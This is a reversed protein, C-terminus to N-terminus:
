ENYNGREIAKNYDYNMINQFGEEKRKLEDKLKLEEKTTSIPNLVPKDTIPKASKNGLKYGLFLCLFLVLMIAIGVLIGIIIQM